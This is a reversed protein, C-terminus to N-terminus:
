TYRRLTSLTYGAMIFLTWIALIYNNLFGVFYNTGGYLGSFHFLGVCGNNACSTGGVASGVIIFGGLMYLMLGPAKDDLHTYKNLAAFLFAM